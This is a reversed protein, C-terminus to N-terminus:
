RDIDFVIVEKDTDVYLADWPIAFLKNGVGLISLATQM